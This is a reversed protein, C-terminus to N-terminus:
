AGAHAQTTRDAGRAELWAEFMLVTWLQAQRNSRGSLHDSWAESIPGVRFYGERELRDPSLLDSAWGRLPGRLWEDVPISFGRKPRDFLSGPLYRALVERLVWKTTGDRLKLDLPLRWAFEAVRHDLYPARTELSVAMAARDIKVMIDDPLYSQLDMAMLTEVPDRLFSPAPVSQRGAGIVIAEGDWREALIRRMDAPSRAAVLSAAKRAKDAFTSHRSGVGAFTGLKNLLGRPLARLLAAGATRAPRPMSGLIRWGRKAVLYREYGAFLEDGGDGSLAVTVQSRALQSVLFTPVQSSDAFPEDYIDPLRPVVDLTDQATVILEHHDTGLHRAVDRAFPSEDFRQDEFGIAFTQVPRGSHKQMLAVILSSDIGGSFFAGVPVDALLQGAVAKALLEDLADVAEAEGLASREEVGRRIMDEASWYPEIRPESGSGHLALVCGPKLQSIGRYISRPAPIYGERMYAALSDRDIEGEFAPHCALAKLESGFLFVAKGGRGQWGYYLPKEGIRDRALQLSRDGRDWLALALMGVARQLTESLGWAEIGALLTETDSSGRWEPAKGAAELERRLELHNYAEGNYSLVFRGSASEMPQNGAPSLDLIALRQSSLGIGTDSDMWIGGGQDPGRHRLSRGMHELLRRGETADGARGSYFGALGCM